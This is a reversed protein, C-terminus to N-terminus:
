LRAIVPAFPGKSRPAALPDLTLPLWLDERLPFAFKDPMVGIVVRPVGDARITRGVVDPSSGYRDRWLDHGILIVPPAGQRDDGTRFGRGIQPEVGLVEFAAVTLLGGSFREPRGEETSLNVAGITYAGMPEFSTERQRYVEIDQVSLTQLPQNQSPRGAILSVIRGSDRFPLGKFLAGNVVCFVTTSLGLGLGLTVISVLSLTPYKVLMRLGSRVDTLLQSM